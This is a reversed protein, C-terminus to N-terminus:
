ASPAPDTSGQVEFGDEQVPLYQNPDQDAPPQEVAPDDFQHDTPTDTPEPAPTQETM